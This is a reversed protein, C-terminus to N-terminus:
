AYPIGGKKKTQRAEPHPLHRDLLEAVVDSAARNQSAAALQLRKALGETLHLTFRTKGDAYKEAMVM